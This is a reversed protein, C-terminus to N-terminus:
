YRHRLEHPIVFRGWRPEGFVLPDCGFRDLFSRQKPEPILALRTSQGITQNGDIAVVLPTRLSGLQCWNQLCMIFRRVGTSVTTATKNTADAAHACSTLRGLSNTLWHSYKRPFHSTSVSISPLTWRPVHATSHDFSLDHRTVYQAPLMGLPVDRLVRIWPQSARVLFISTTSNEGLPADATSLYRITESATSSPSVAPMSACPWAYLAVARTSRLLGSNNVNATVRSPRTVTYLKRRELSQDRCADIQRGQDRGPWM